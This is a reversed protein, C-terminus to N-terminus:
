SFSSNTPSRPVQRVPPDGPFRVRPAPQGRRAAEDRLRRRLVPGKSLFGVTTRLAGGPLSWDGLAREVRLHTTVGTVLTGVLTHNEQGTFREGHHHLTLCAPGSALEPAAPGLHLDLGDGVLEARDVPVCMPFGNRDVVTLDCLPLRALSKVALPRWRAPPARWPRPAAGPPAPDSLPAATTEPAHWEQETQGLRRSPWWRVHLPTVEIWIRAYYWAMRRLAARPRGRVTDPLKTTSLEVYRDTNAQLDSDRVTALGQVLVVPNEDLQTGVPDAFLLSVRPNRRAREAKAAYTLGTSVDVTDGRGGPYPTVPTTIPRGSGTLTSLEATISRDVVDLLPRPWGAPNPGAV